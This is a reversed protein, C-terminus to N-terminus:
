NINESNELKMDEIESRLSDIIEGLYEIDRRLQDNEKENEEARDYEDNGWDRLESNASRVDEIERIAEILEYLISDAEESSDEKPHKCIYEAENKALEMKGIVNDIIPCTHGIPANDNYRAM